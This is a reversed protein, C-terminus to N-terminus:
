PVPKLLKRLSPLNMTQAKAKLSGDTIKGIANSGNVKLWYEGCGSVALEGKKTWSDKSLALVWETGIPFQNIYPRCIMGNDGQVIIKNSKTGGRYIEKVEVTMMLPPRTKAKDNRDWRYELVKGRIVLESRQALQVFSRNSSLCSCAYASPALLLASFGFTIITLYKM